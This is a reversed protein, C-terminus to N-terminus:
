YDASRFPLVFPGSTRTARGVTHRLSGPNVGGDQDAPVRADDRHPGEISLDEDLDPRHIGYGAPSIEYNDRQAPTAEALHRSSQAVEVEHEQGDRQKQFKGWEGVIDHPVDGSIRSPATSVSESNPARIPHETM